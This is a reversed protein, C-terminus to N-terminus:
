TEHPEINAAVTLFCDNLINNKEVLTSNRSRLVILILKLLNM